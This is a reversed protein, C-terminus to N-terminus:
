PSGYSSAVRVMLHLYRSMLREVQVDVDKRQAIAAELEQRTQNAQEWLRKRDVSQTAPDGIPFELVESLTLAETLRPEREGKEIRTIASSDLIVGREALAAILDAQKWGLKKRHAAVTEGFSKVPNQM